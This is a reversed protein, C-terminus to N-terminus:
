DKRPVRQAAAYGGDVLVDTGTIFSAEPGALFAVVGAVDEPTGIRPVPTADILGQVMGGRAGDEKEREFTPMVMPTAIVGPSVSNVRVGRAGAAGAAAQVRVVNGWKSVGYATTTAANLDLAEHRLLEERPAHAMHTELAASVTSRVLHATLSSITTLTSGPPMGDLFADLVNATGVLNIEYVTRADPASAPSIGATNVVARLEGAASAKAALAAVAEYDSVDLVHTEVIHGGARLSAAAQDLTVESFDALFIHHGIGLRRAVALGIGGAGIVVLINRRPM